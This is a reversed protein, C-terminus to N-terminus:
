NSPLNKRVEKGLDELTIEGKIYKESLRRYEDSIICGELECSAIGYEVMERRRKQEAKSIM